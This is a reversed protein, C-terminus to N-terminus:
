FCLPKVMIFANPNLKKSVDTTVECANRDDGKKEFNVKEFFEELIVM